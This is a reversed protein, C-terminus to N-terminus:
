ATETTTQACFLMLLFSISEVPTSPMSAALFTKRSSSVMGVSATSSVLMIFVTM